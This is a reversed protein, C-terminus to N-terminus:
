SVRAKKAWKDFRQYSKFGILGAAETRKGGSEELARELYHAKVEELTEELSFSGGLPRGLISDLQLKPRVILAGRVTEEDITAGKSFMRARELTGQLERVNGPWSHALM